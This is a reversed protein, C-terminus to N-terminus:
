RGASGGAIALNDGVRRRIESLTILTPAGILPAEFEMSREGGEGGAIRFSVCAPRRPYDSSEDAFVSPNSPRCRVGCSAAFRRLV